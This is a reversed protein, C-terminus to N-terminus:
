LNCGSAKEHFFSALAKKANALGYKVERSMWINM